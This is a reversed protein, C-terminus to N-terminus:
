FDRQYLSNAISIDTTRCIVFFCMLNAIYIDGSSVKVM